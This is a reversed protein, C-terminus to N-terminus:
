CLLCNATLIMVDTDYLLGHEMKFLNVLKILYKQLGKLAETDGTISLLRPDFIFNIGKLDSFTQNIFSM